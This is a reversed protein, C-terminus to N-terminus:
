QSYVRQPNAKQSPNFTQILEKIEQFTVRTEINFDLMRKLLSKWPATIAPHNFEFGGKAKAKLLVNRLEEETTVGQILHEKTLMEYLIYGTSFVDCTQNYKRGHSVYESLVYVEPASYIPTCKKFTAIGEGSFEKATGFDAIKLKNGQTLL